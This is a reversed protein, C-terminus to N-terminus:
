RCPPEVRLNLQVDINKVRLRGTESRERQLNVTTELHETNILAIRPPHLISSSLCHGVSASLVRIPDPGVGDGMPVPEDVILEPLSGEDFEVRFQYGEILRLKTV